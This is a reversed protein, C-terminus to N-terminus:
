KKRTLNSIIFIIIVIPFGFYIINFRFVQVLATGVFVFLLCLFFYTAGKKLNKQYYGDAILLFIPITSILLLYNIM